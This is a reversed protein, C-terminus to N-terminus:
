DNKYYSFICFVCSRSAYVTVQLEKGQFLAPPKLVGIKHGFIFLCSISSACVFFHM